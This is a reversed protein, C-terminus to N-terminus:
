CVTDGHEVCTLAVGSRSTGDPGIATRPVAPQAHEDHQQCEARVQHRHKVAHRRRRDGLIKRTGELDTRGREARERRGIEVDVRHHLNRGAHERVRQARPADERQASDNGARARQEEAKRRAELHGHRPARQDAQADGHREDGHELEDRDPVVLAAEGREDARHHEEAVDARHAGASRQRPRRLRRPPAADEHRDPRQRERDAHQGPEEDLVPRGTRPHRRADFRRRGAGGPAFLQERHQAITLGPRTEEDVDADRAAEESEDAKPGHRIEHLDVAHAAFHRRMVDRHIEGAECETTGRDARKGIAPLAAPRQHDAARHQVRQPPPDPEDGARQRRGREVRQAQRHAQHGRAQRERPGAGLFDVRRKVGAHGGAHDIEAHEEPRRDQLRQHAPHHVTPPV